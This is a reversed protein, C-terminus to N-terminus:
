WERKGEIGGNMPGCNGRWRLARTHACVCVCEGEREGQRGCAQTGEPIHPDCVSGLAVFENSHLGRFPFVKCNVRCQICCTCCCGQGQCHCCGQGRCHCCGQGQCHCCGHWCGHGHTCALYPRSGSLLHAPAHHYCCGRQTCCCCAAWSRCEFSGAIAPRRLHLLQSCHSTVRQNGTCTPTHTRTCKFTGVPQWKQLSLKHQLRAILGQSQRLVGAARAQMAYTCVQVHVHKDWRGEDRAEEQMTVRMGSAGLVARDRGGRGWGM